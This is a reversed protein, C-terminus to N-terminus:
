SPRSSGRCLVSDDHIRYLGGHTAHRWFRKSKTLPVSRECEPCEAMGYGRDKLVFVKAKRSRIVEEEGAAIRENRRRIAMRKRSPHYSSMVQGKPVGRLGVSICPEEPDQECTPCWEARTDIQPRIEVTQAYSKNVRVHPHSKHRGGRDTRSSPKSM